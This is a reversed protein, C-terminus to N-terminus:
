QLLLSFLYILTTPVLNEPVCYSFRHWHREAPEMYCLLSALVTFLIGNLIYVNYRYTGWTKELATGISYYFYLMIITFIDLSAPPILLWTVVRWVQGHLIRYPELTLYQVLGPSFLDIVYGAIYCAILILTLNPIAYKGFRKEFKSMKMKIVM